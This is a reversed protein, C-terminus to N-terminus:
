EHNYEEEIEEWLQPDETSLKSLDARINGRRQKYSKDHFGGRNHDHKAVLNNTKQRDRQKRNFSM